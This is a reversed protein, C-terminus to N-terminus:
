ILSTFQRLTALARSQESNDLRSGTIRSAQFYGESVGGPLEGRGRVVMVYMIIAPVSHMSVEWKGGRLWNDLYYCTKGTM